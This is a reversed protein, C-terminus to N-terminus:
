RVAKTKASPHYRGKIVAGKKKVAAKKVGGAGPFAIHAELAFHDSLRSNADTGFLQIGVSRSTLPYFPETNGAADTFSNFYFIYDLRQRDHDDSPIMNLNEQANWTFGQQDPNSERFSDRPNGLLSIMRGYEDGADGIVNM